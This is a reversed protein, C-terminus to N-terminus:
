KEFFQRVRGVVDRPSEGGGPHPIDYGRQFNVIEPDERFNRGTFSGTHTEMIETRQEIHWTGDAKQLHLHTETHELVLAATNFARSLTSSFAKDFRHGKLSRGAERAQEEGEPTLPVDTQGTILNQRNYETEGHRMIVLTAKKTM